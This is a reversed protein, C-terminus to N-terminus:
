SRFFRLFFTIVIGIGLLMALFPLALFFAGIALAAGGLLAACKIKWHPGFFNRLLGERFDKAAEGEEMGMRVVHLFDDKEISIDYTKGDSAQELTVGAYNEREGDTMVRVRPEEANRQTEKEEM